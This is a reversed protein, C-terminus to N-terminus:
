QVLRKMVEKSGPHKLDLTISRKGRNFLEFGGFYAGASSAAVRMPDGSAPELKLM